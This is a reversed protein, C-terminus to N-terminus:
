NGEIEDERRRKNGLSPRIGCNEYFVYNDCFNLFNCIHFLLVNDPTLVFAFYSTTNLVINFHLALQCPYQKNMLTLVPQIWIMLWLDGVLSPFLLIFFLNNLTVMATKINKPILTVAM